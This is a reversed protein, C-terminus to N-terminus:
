GLNRIRVCYLAHPGLSASALGLVQLEGHGGPVNTMGDAGDTFSAGALTTGSLGGSPGGFRLRAFLSGQNVSQESLNLPPRGPGPYEARAPTAADGTIMFDRSGAPVVWIAGTSGKAGAPLVPSVPAGPVAPSVAVVILPQAGQRPYFMPHATGDAKLQRLASSVVAIGGSTADTEFVVDGVAFSNQDFAAVARLSPAASGSATLWGSDLIQLTV